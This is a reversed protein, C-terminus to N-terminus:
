WSNMVSDFEREVIPKPKPQLGNTIGGEVLILMGRGGVTCVVFATTLSISPYMTILKVILFM